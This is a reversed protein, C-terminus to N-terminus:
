VETEAILSSIVISSFNSSRWDQWFNCSLVTTFKLELYRYILKRQEARIRDLMKMGCYDQFFCLVKFSSSYIQVFDSFFRSTLIIEKIM